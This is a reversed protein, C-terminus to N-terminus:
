DKDDINHLKLEEERRDSTAEIISKFKPFKRLLDDFRDKDLSYINSYESAVVTANRPQARLLSTEGFFSGERLVALDDGHDSDVIRVSGKSIFFMSSGLDGRRVILDGPMYIHISLHRVVEKHFAVGAEKFLPVKSLLPKRLFLAVETHLSDPLDNIIEDEKHDLRNEWIYKYYDRMRKELHDPIDRYALFADIVAMKRSFDIRATDINGLLNAINAIIYGYTGVGLIMVFMAYMLQINSTPTIDGYGVTTMTTIVWYISKLYITATDFNTNIGGLKVWGCAMWHVAFVLLIFFILMRVISPNLTYYGGWKRILPVIKALKLLRFLRIMRLMKFSELLLAPIAALLDIIFWTKLYSYNIRNGDEIADDEDPIPPVLNVLVDIFFFFSIFLDLGFFFSSASYDFVFRFPIEIGVVLTLMMIWADWIDKYRSDHIIYRM